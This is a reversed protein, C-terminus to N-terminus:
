GISYIHVIKQKVVDTTLLVEHPNPFKQNAIYLALVGFSFIDLKVDYKPEPVLAEPPMYAPTGPAITLMGKPMQM